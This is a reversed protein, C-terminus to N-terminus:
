HLAGNGRVPMLGSKLLAEAMAQSGRRSWREYLGLVGRADHTSTAYLTDAVDALLAVLEEFNTALERFVDPGRVEGSTRKLISGAADYATAGVDRVYRSEIGKRELHDSFFSSVYLTHDGLKRLKGFREPGVTELAEALVLTLPRNFAERVLAGPKAYDVLLASVYLASPAGPDYGRTVAASKVAEQFFSALTTTEDILAEV